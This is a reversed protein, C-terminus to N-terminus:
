PYVVPSVGGRRQVVRKALRGSSGEDEDMSHAKANHAKRGKSNTGKRLCDLRSLLFPGRCPEMEFLVFDHGLMSSM